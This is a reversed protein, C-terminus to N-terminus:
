GGDSEREIRENKKELADMYQQEISEAKKMTELHPAIFTEEIEPKPKEPWLKYIALALVLLVLLFRM